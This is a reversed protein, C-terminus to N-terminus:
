LSPHSKEGDFTMGIQSTTRLVGFDFRGGYLDCGAELDIVVPSPFQLGLTTKGVGSDGWTLLKLRKRRAQAPQFPSTSEQTPPHPSAATPQEGRGEGRDGSLPM